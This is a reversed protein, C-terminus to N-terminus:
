KLEGAIEKIQFGGQGGTMAEVLWPLITGLREALTWPPNVLILGSGNFTDAPGNRRLMFDVATIKPIGSAALANHFAAVAATNKIPYWMIYTGTPWRDCAEGLGKVMLDFENTVEFPPDTLVMGRREHPPLQARLQIYGDDQEAKVRYDRGLNRRLTEHDEPHLENAVLRDHARLMAKIILPSGPYHRLVGDPNVGRVLALYNKVEDPADARNWLKGIGDASENTKGAEVSALDYLGIGSHTDLVYFPKEKTRLYDLVMMLVIHKVVDAFNGAHYIHRYNM